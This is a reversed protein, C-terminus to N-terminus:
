CVAVSIDSSSLVKERQGHAAECKSPAGVNHEYRVQTEKGTQPRSAPPQPPTLTDARQCAGVDPEWCEM